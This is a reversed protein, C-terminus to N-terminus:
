KVVDVWTVTSFRYGRTVKRVEHQFYFNSPFAILTGAKPKFCVMKGDKDYARTLMLEGGSYSGSSAYEEEYDNLYMLITFKRNPTNCWWPHGHMAPDPATIGGVCNDCHNSFFFGEGYGLVQWGEGRKFTGDVTFYERLLPYIAQM